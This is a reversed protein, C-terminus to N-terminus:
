PRSTWGGGSSSSRRIGLRRARPTSCPSPKEALDAPMTDVPHKRTMPSKSHYAGSLRGGCRGERGRLDARRVQGRAQSSGARHIAGKRHHPVGPLTSPLDFAVLEYGGLIAHEARNGSGFEPDPKWPFATPEAM